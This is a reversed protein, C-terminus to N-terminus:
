SRGYGARRTRWWRSRAVDYTRADREMDYCEVGPITKYHSDARVFLAAVTM